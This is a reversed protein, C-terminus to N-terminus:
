SLLLLHHAGAAATDWGFGNRWLPGGTTVYLDALAACTSPDDGAACILARAPRPQTLRPLPRAEAAPALSCSALFLLAAVRAM